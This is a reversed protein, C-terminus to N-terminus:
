QSAASAIMAQGGAPTEAWATVTGAETKAHISFQNGGFLPSTARYEFLTIPEDSMLKQSLACLKTATLPAHFVLGPYGEVQRAYDADYHIRHGNFTLASYRFMLVPNPDIGESIDPDQPAAIAVPEKTRLRKPPDERYVLNQVEKICVQDQDLYEHVVSVIALPGSKGKKEEINAITSRKAIEQGIQIPRMLEMKGGAWMRRPLQLDPLFLGKRPHGDRGLDDQPVAENFWAWQWCLPLVDGDEVPNEGLTVALRNAHSKDVIAVRTQTNGVYESYNTM